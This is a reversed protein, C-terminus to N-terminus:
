KPGSGKRFLRHLRKAFQWVGRLEKPKKVLRVQLLMDAEQAKRVADDLTVVEVGGMYFRFRGKDNIASLKM